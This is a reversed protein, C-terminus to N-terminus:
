VWRRQVSLFRRRRTTFPTSRVASSKWWQIASVPFRSVLEIFTFVNLLALLGAGLFSIPTAYGAEGAIKGILAYFGGGVMTGLGYFLLAPLSLSRKLKIDSEDSAM